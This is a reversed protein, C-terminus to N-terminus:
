APLGIVDRRKGRLVAGIGFLGAILMAWTAPEPVEAISITFAGGNDAFDGDGVGFHLHTLVSSGTNLLFTYDHTPNYTPRGGVIFNVADQAPDFPVLTSTGFTLQYYPPDDDGGQFVYFADNLSAGDSNGFGSVTVLVTDDYLGSTVGGDPTTFPVNVIESAQAAMPIAFALTAATAAGLALTKISM